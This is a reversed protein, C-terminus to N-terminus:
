KTVEFMELQKLTLDLCPPNSEFIEQILEVSYRGVGRIEIEDHTDIGYVKPIRIVANVKVQNAKATFYRNYGLVRNTFGLSNYKYEKNGENDEYYIDCVGDSFSVFEINNPKLKM